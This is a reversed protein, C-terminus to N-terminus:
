QQEHRGPNQDLSFSPSATCICSISFERPPKPLSNTPQHHRETKTPLCWLAHAQCRCVSPVTWPLFGRSTLFSLHAFAPYLTNPICPSCTSDQACLPRSKFYFPFLLFTSCLGPTFQPPFVSLKRRMSSFYSTLDESSYSTLDIGRPFSPPQVLTPFTPAILYDRRSNLFTSATPFACPDLRM